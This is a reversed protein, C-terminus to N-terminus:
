RKFLFTEILFLVLSVLAGGGLAGLAAALAVKTNIIAIQTTLLALAAEVRVLRTESEEQREYLERRQEDSAARHSAFETELKTLRPDDERRKYEPM